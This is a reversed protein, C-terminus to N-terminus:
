FRPRQAVPAFSLASTIEPSAATFDKDTPTVRELLDQHTQFDKVFLGNHGREIWYQHDAVVDLKVMQDKKRGTSFWYTGPAMELQLADIVRIYGLFLQGCFVKEHFNAVPNVYFIQPPGHYAPPQMGMLADRKVYLPGNLYVTELTGGYVVKEEGKSLLVNPIIIPLGAVLAVSYPNLLTTGAVLLADTGVKKATSAMKAPRLTAIEGNPLVLQEVVVNVRGDRLRRRPRSVYVVTGSLAAGKPIVVLEDKRVTYAVVFDVTDGVKATASSLNGVLRLTIPTGDPLAISDVPEAPTQTAVKEQTEEAQQLPRSAAGFTAPVLLVFSAVLAGYWTVWGQRLMPEEGATTM